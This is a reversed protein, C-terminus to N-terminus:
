SKSPGDPGVGVVFVGARDAAAVTEDRDLLLARGAEVAVGRFGVEVILAITAPGITPLDARLEQGPKACKVLVPGPGARRLAAARRVMEDTGEVAEVALVLGQQVVAGQGIDLTGLLRAAEFGRGIDRWADDDPACRGYVGEVALLSDLVAEPGVVRFGESELEKVIGALLRNDGGTLPLRAALMMGRRDLRLERLSPRRVRGALVLEVCAADHLAAFGAGVQGLGIWAHPTTEVTEASTQDHLALVFHERGEARCAAVLRAPLDGGGAIIGLKPSVPM